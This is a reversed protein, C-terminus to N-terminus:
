EETPGAQEAAHHFACLPHSEVWKFGIELGFRKLEDFEELTYYSLQCTIGVQSCISGRHNLIWKVRAPADPTCRM